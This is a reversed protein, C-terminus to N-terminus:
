LSVSNNQGYAANSGLFFSDPLLGGEVSHGVWTQGFAQINYSFVISFQDAANHAVGGSDSFGPGLMSTDVTMATWILQSSPEAILFFVAYNM